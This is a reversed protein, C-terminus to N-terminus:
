KRTNVGGLYRVMYFLFYTFNLLTGTSNLVSAANEYFQDAATLLELGINWLSLNETRFALYHNFNVSENDPIAM